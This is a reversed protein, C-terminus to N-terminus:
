IEVHPAPIGELMKGFKGQGEEKLLKEDAKIFALFHKMIAADCTEGEKKYSL